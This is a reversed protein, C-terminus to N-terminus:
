ARYPKYVRIWDVEMYRGSVGDTPAGAWDGGVTMNLIFYFPRDFPSGAAGNVAHWQSEDIEGYARGDVYFRFFESGNPNRDWLVSWTHWAQSWNTATAARYNQAHNGAADRAYHLTSYGNTNEGTRGLYELIDIEGSRPWYGYANDRPMMWLASWLGQGAPVKARIEFYGYKWATLGRGHVLGGYWKGGRKEVRLRLKSNACTVLAPDWGVITGDRDTWNEPAKRWKARNFSNFDDSWVLPGVRPPAAHAEGATLVPALAGLGALALPTTGLTQLLSRRSLATADLKNM